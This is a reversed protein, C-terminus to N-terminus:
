AGSQDTDKRKPPEPLAPPPEASPAAPKGLDESEPDDNEPTPSAAPSRPRERPLLRDVLGKVPKGRLLRQLGDLGAEVTNGVLGSGMGALRGKLGEPDIRPNQMTGRIPIEFRADQILPPLVGAGPASRNMSVGAVLDLNRDFDVSGDLAISALNAVPIVLGKQHVKRDKIEISISDHLVLLPQDLKDFVVLLKDALRGPLFRVDDFTVEGSVRAQADSPAIIPFVAEKLRASIRGKVRTAGDLIPAAFSLVRHSVEDNIVAGELASSEGLRLWTHGDQDNVM